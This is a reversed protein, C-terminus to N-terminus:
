RAISARATLRWLSTSRPAASPAFALGLTRTRPGAGLSSLYQAVHTPDSADEPERALTFIGRVDLPHERFEGPATGVVDAGLAQARDYQTM